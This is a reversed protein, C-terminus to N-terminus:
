PATGTGEGLSRIMKWAACGDHYYDEMWHLVEYGMRRYLSIAARNDARVELYISDCGRTLAVAELALLLRQGLGQGRAGPHLCFSYLRAKKENRRFLLTGYGVLADDEDIILRTQANAKTVLYKLQSPSFSDENDGFCTRELANLAAADRGEAARLTFAM